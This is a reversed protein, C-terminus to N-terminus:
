PRRPPNLQGREIIAREVAKLAEIQQRMEDLRKQERQREAIQVYILGALLHMPSTSGQQVLAELLSAARADDRVSAGPTALLLALRVRSYTSRNRAFARNDAAYGRRQEEASMTTVRQAHAILELVQREEPECRLLGAAPEAPPRVTPEAPPQAAPQAPLQAAADAPLKPASEPTSGPIRIGACGTLLLAFAIALSRPLRQLLLWGGNRLNGTGPLGRPKVPTQLAQIPVM